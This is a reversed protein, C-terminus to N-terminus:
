ASRGGNEYESTSSVLREDAFIILDRKRYRICRASIRIYKPGGGKLRWNQLTRQTVGLFKAATKENILRDPDDLIEPQQDGSSTKNKRNKLSEM